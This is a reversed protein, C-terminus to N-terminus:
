IRVNSKKTDNTNYEAKIDLIVDLHCWESVKISSKTSQKHEWHFM